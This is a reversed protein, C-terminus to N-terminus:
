VSYESQQPGTNSPEPAPDNDYHHHRHPGTITDNPAPKGVSRGGHTSPVRRFSCDSITRFILAFSTSWSRPSPRDPRAIADECPIDRLDTVATGSAASAAPIPQSSTASSPSSCTYERNNGPRPSCSLTNAWGSQSRTWRSNARTPTVSFSKCPSYTSAM